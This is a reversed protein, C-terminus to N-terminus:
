DVVDLKQYKLQLDAVHMLSCMLILLSLWDLSLKTYYTLLNADVVYIIYAISYISYSFIQLAM